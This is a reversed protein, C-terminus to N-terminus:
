LDGKDKCVGVTASPYEVFAMPFWGSMLTNDWHSKNINKAPHEETNLKRDRAIILCNLLVSFSTGAATKAFLDSIEGAEKDQM